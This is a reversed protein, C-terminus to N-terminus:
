GRCNLNNKAYKIKGVIWKIKMCFYDMKKTYGIIYKESNEDNSM